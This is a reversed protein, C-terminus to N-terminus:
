CAHVALSYKRLPLFELFIFIVKLNQMFRVTDDLNGKLYFSLMGSMGKTQKKHLEHQPHSPLAPYLVKEVLPHKELYQAIKLGNEYHARMRLHLTKLGRNVLYCDFPSPNAGM